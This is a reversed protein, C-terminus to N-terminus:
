SRVTIATGRPEISHRYTSAYSAHTCSRSGQRQSEAAVVDGCVSLRLPEDSFRAVTAATAEVPISFEPTSNSAGEYESWEGGDSAFNFQPDGTRM